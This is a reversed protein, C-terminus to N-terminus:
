KELERVTFRASVEGVKAGRMNNVPAHHYKALAEVQRADLVGLQGLIEITIAPRARNTVDGDIVKYAVGAGRAFAACPLVGLTYFGEAGGKCILTSGAVRMLDTDLRDTGGVMEPYTQMAHVVRRCAEQRAAPWRDPQVIRAIGLAFSYLSVGFTPVTCGDSALIIRDAPVDTFESLLALIRKQVPHDREFYGEHPVGLYRAMALMGSHKGSCNSHLSNPQQGAAALRAAAARNAPAHVGCMLASADLGIRTLIGQVTSTHMEEGSHSACMIALERESFGLHDVAGSEVLPLAQLPKASSRPYTVLGPDGLSYLLKGDADVIALSGLHTCEVMDGRTVTVLPVANLM